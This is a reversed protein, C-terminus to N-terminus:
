PGLSSIKLVALDYSKLTSNRFNNSIAKLLLTIDKQNFNALSTLLFLSAKLNYLM